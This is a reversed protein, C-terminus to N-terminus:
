IRHFTFAFVNVRVFSFQFGADRIRDIQGNHDQADRAILDESHLRAAEYLRRDFAAPPKPAYSAFEAQLLAIDVEFFDRGGAVDPEQSTALRIGEAEPNQRARNLLWLRAQEVGDPHQGDPTKHLLWEETPTGQPGFDQREGQEAGDAPHIAIPPDPEPSQHALM